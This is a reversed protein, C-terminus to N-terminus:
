QGAPYIGQLAIIPQVGLYAVQGSGDASLTGHYDVGPGTDIVAAGRLDPLAFTTTGDGGYTTGILSFLEPHGQIPLIQGQCFAWGRPAFSTATYVIEGIFPTDVSGGPLVPAELPTIYNITQYGLTGVESLNVGTHGLPYTDDAGLPTRGRLDPLAFTVRGDGGYTTGIVSFLEPYQAISLLDGQCFAYGDPLVQGAYPIITGLLNVPAENYLSGSACIIAGIDAYGIGGAGTSSDKGSSGLEYGPLNGGEGAGLARNGALNPLLGTGRGGGGGYITAITAWLQMHETVYYPGGACPLWNKPTAAIPWVLMQGVLAM